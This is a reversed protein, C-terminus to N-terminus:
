WNSKLTKKSVSIKRIKLPTKTEEIGNNIEINSYPNSDEVIESDAIQINKRKKGIVIPDQTFTDNIVLSQIDIQSSLNNNYKTKLLKVQNVWQEMEALNHPIQNVYFSHSGQSRYTFIINMIKGYELEGVKDIKIGSVDIKVNTGNVRANVNEKNEINDNINLIGDNFLVALAFKVSETVTDTIDEKSIMIAIFEHISSPFSRIRSLTRFCKRIMMLDKCEEGFELFIKEYLCSFCSELKKSNVNGYCVGHVLKNCEKCERITGSNTPSQLGCECEVQRNIKSGNFQTPQTNPQSSKLIDSLLNSVQSQSNIKNGVTPLINFNEEAFSLPDIYQYSESFSQKNISVIDRTENVIEEQILSSDYLSFLSLKIKNHGTNLSGVSTDALNIGSKLKITPPKEYTADKFLSPQFNKPTTDNFMLRMSLYKKDPLPELSQTLIIFRRMLQQVAKRSDLLSSTLTGKKDSEMKFSIENNNQYEFSFVYNEILDNPEKEDSFIGLSLAKLYKLRLTQFVGNELWDLFVDAEQSRGRLLTKIKISNAQVIKNKDYNKIVKEPVFRQDIFNDDPFLGRLFALCGFSMSLLTQILKQSQETTIETKTDVKTLVQQKTSM